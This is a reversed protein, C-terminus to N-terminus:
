GQALGSVSHLRRVNNLLNSLSLRCVSKVRHWPPANILGGEHRTDSSGVQHEPSLVGYRVNVCISATRM